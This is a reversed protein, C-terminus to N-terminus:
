TQTPSLRYGLGRVTQLLTADRGLKKRLRNVHTKLTQTQTPGLLDWVSSLLQQHTRVRGAAAVLNALLRFEVVTLSVPHGHARCAWGDIEMEIPGCRLATREDHDVKRLVAECRLLLERVSFPKTVYDDVGLEFARVRDRESARATVFVVAINKTRPNGKLVRCVDPGSLGPLMWDLLVLQPGRETALRVADEGNTATLTAFGASGLALELLQVIDAEDDVVLVRRKNDREDTM